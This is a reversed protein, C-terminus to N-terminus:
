GFSTETKMACVCPWAYRMRHFVSTRKLSFYLSPRRSSSDFSVAVNGFPWAM